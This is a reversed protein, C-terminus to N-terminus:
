RQLTAPRLIGLLLLRSLVNAERRSPDKHVTHLISSPNSPDTLDRTSVAVRTVNGGVMLLQLRPETDDKGKDM